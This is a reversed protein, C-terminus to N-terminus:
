ESKRKKYLWIGLFILNWVLLNGLANLAKDQASPGCVVESNCLSRFRDVPQSSSAFFQSVFIFNIFIWFGVFWKKRKSMAEGANWGNERRNKFYKYLGRAALFLVNTIVLSGFAAWFDSSSAWSCNDYTNNFFDAMTFRTPCVANGDALAVYISGLNIVGSVNIYIWLGSFIRGELSLSKFWFNFRQLPNERLSSPLSSQSLSRGCHACFSAGDIIPSGCSSCFYAKEMITLFLLFSPLPTALAIAIRTSLETISCRCPEISSTTCTSM